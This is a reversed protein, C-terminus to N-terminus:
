MFVPAAGLGTIGGPVASDMAPQTAFPSIQIRKARSFCTLRAEEYVYHIKHYKAKTWQNKFNSIKLILEIFGIPSINLNSRFM